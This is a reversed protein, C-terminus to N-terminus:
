ISELRIRTILQNEGENVHFSRRPGMYISM